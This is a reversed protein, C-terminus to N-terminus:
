SLPRHLSKEFEATTATDPEILDDPRYAHPLKKHAWVGIPIAKKAPVPAIIAQPQGYAGIYIVEGAQAQKVLKSLHTKAEYMSIVKVM